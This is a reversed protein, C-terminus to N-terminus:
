PYAAQYSPSMGTQFGGNELGGVQFQILQSPAGHPSAILDFERGLIKGQQFQEQTPLPFHQWAAQNCRLDPILIEAGIGIHDIDRHAPQTDLDVLTEIVLEDM